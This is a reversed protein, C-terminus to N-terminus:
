DSSFDVLEDVKGGKSAPEEDGQCGQPHQDVSVAEGEVRSRELDPPFFLHEKYQAADTFLRTSDATNHFTGRTIATVKVTTQKKM